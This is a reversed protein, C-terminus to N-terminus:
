LLNNRQALMMFTDFNYESIQMWLYYDSRFGKISDWLMQFDPSQASIETYVENAANFSAEMVDPTFPQLQAGQGVLSKLAPPNVDDYHAMMDMNVAQAATRLISQYSKPLEEYKAINFM